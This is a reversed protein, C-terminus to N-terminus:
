LRFFRDGPSYVSFAVMLTPSKTFLASTFTVTVAGVGVGTGVGSGVGTGVAVGVGVGVGVGSGVCSGALEDAEESFM